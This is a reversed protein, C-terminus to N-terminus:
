EDTEALIVKRIRSNRTDAILVNGDADVAVGFPWSLLAEGAPGFDGEFGPEGCTGALTSIVGDSGVRRVCNNGQDAIYMTGDPGFAMDTPLLLEAATADGGDGSYGCGVCEEPACKLSAEPVGDGNVDCEDVPETVGSGAVTAVTDAAPDWSRIRGNETDAVYVKGDHWRVRNAPTAEQGRTASLLAEAGPGGDGGFGAQGTGMVTHAVGDPDIYRVRQNAQDGVYVGDEDDVTVGAVLDFACTAAPVEDIFSRTGDGALVSVTALDATVGIVRSNHWAAIVITGDSKFSVATPHNWRAEQAPGAPGDGLLGGIGTVTEIVGDDSIRITRHNNWDNVLMRGAADVNVGVPQYLRAEAMATGDESLGPHVQGMITCIHGVDCNEDPCGALSAASAGAALSLLFRKV